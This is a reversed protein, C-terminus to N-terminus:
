KHPPPQESIMSARAAPHDARHGLTPRQTFGLAERATNVTARGGAEGGCGQQKALNASRLFQCPLMSGEARMLTAIARTACSVPGPKSWCPKDPPAESIGCLPPASVWGHLDGFRRQAGPVPLIEEERRDTHSSECVAEHRCVHPRQGIGVSPSSWSGGRLHWSGRRASCVCGGPVSTVLLRSEAKEQAPAFPTSPRAPHNRQRPLSVLHRGRREPSRRLTKVSEAREQRPVSAM